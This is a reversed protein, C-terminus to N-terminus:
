ITVEKLIHHFLPEVSSKWRKLFFRLTSIFSRYLLDKRVSMQFMFFFKVPAFKKLEQDTLYNSRTRSM